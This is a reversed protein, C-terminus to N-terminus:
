QGMIPLVRVRDVCLRLFFLRSSKFEFKAEDVMEIKKNRLGVM